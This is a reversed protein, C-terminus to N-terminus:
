NHVTIIFRLAWTEEFCQLMMWTRSEATLVVNDGFKKSLVSVEKDWEFQKNKTGNNMKDVNTETKLLM